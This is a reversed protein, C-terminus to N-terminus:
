FDAFELEPNMVTIDGTKRYKMFDMQRQGYSVGIEQALNQTFYYNVINTPIFILGLTWFFRGKKSKFRKLVPFKRFGVVPVMM